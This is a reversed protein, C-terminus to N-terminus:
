LGARGRMAGGGEGEEDEMLKRIATEVVGREVAGELLVGVKWSDAVYRGTALQDGFLPRSLMPVGEYVSELTSNWGSHTWFGGVAPHALVEQQPAWEVMRGRGAAAAGFGEPLEPPREDVGLVLGRRGVWLFPRGSSALGWAVETFEDAPSM